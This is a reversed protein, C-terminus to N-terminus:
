TLLAARQLLKVGTRRAAAKPPTPTRGHPTPATGGLAGQERTEGGEPAEGRRKREADGTAQRRRAAEARTAGATGARRQPPKRRDPPRPPAKPPRQPPRRKHRKAGGRTPNPTEAAAAATPASAVTARARLAAEGRIYVLRFISALRLRLCLIKHRSNVQYVM